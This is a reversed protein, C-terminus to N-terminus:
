TTNGHTAAQSSRTGTGSRAALRALKWASSALLLTLIAAAVHTYLMLHVSGESAASSDAPVDLPQNGGHLHGFLGGGPVYGGFADLGFHLLQQAVGSFLLLLLPGHVWRTVLQAALCTLALLALLLPLAPPAGGAAVHAALGLAVAIVGAAWAWKDQVPATRMAM